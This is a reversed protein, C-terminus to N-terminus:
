LPGCSSVYDLAIIVLLGLCLFLFFILAAAQHLLVKLAPRTLLLRHASQTFLGILFPVAAAPMSEDLITEGVVALLQAKCSVEQDEAAADGAIGKGGIAASAGKQLPPGLLLVEVEYLLRAAGALGEGTLFEIAAALAAERCTCGLRQECM